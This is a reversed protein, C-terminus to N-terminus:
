SEGAVQRLAALLCDGFVPYHDATVGYAVHLAGLGQLYPRMFEPREMHSVILALARLLKRRQEDFQVGAFLDLLQPFRAFLTDYFTQALLEGHPGLRRFSERLVHIDTNMMDEGGPITDLALGMALHHLSPYGGGNQLPRGDTGIRASASRRLMWRGM